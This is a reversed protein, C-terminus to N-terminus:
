MTDKEFRARFRLKRDLAVFLKFEEVSLRRTAKADSLQIWATREEKPMAPVARHHEADQVYAWDTVSQFTVTTM